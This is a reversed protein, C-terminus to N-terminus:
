KVPLKFFPLEESGDGALYAQLGTEFNLIYEILKDVDVPEGDAKGKELYGLAKALMKHSGRFNANTAHFLAVATQIIGQFFANRAGSTEMWATEWVEHAEFYEAADFHQRGKEFLENLSV